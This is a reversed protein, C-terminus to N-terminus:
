RKIANMIRYYQYNGILLPYDAHGSNEFDIAQRILRDAEDYNNKLSVIRAKTSYFKAYDSELEIARNVCYLASDYWEGVISDFDEQLCNECITAFVNAFTHQYGSNDPLECASEHALRLISDYDYLSESHTEYMIRIHKLSTHNTFSERKEADQILRSLRSYDKQHRYITALCFFAEYSCGSTSDDMIGRLVEIDYESMHLRAFGTIQSEYERSTEANASISKLDDIFQM